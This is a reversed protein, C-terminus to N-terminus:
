IVLSIQKIEVQKSHYCILICRIYRKECKLITLGIKKELYRRVVCFLRMYHVLPSAPYMTLM